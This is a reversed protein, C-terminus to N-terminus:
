IRSYKSGVRAARDIFSGISSRSGHNQNGNLKASIQLVPRGRWAFRGFCRHGIASRGQQGAIKVVDETLVVGCSSALGDVLDEGLIAHEVLGFPDVTAAILDLANRAGDLSSVGVEAILCNGFGLFQAITSPDSPYRPAGTLRWSVGLSIEDNDSVAANGGNIEKEVLYGSSGLPMTTKDSM